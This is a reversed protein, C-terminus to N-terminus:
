LNKNHKLFEILPQYAFPELMEDTFVWHGNRNTFPDDSVCNELEYMNTGWRSYKDIIKYVKGCYKKMERVFSICGYDGVRLKKVRVYDGVNYM